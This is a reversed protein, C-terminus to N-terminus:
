FGNWAGRYESARWSTPITVKFSFTTWMEAVCSEFRGIMYIIAPYMTAVPPNMHCCDGVSAVLTRFGALDQADVRHRYPLSAPVALQHTLLNTPDFDSPRVQRQESVICHGINLSGCSWNSASRRAAQGSLGSGNYPRHGREMMGGYSEAFWVLQAIVEEADCRDCPSSRGLGEPPWSSFYQQLREPETQIEKVQARTMDLSQM